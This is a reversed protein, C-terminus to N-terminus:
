NGGPPLRDGQDVQDVQFFSGSRNKMDVELGTRALRDQDEPSLDVMKDIDEPM